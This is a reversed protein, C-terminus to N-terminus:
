EPCGPIRNCLEAAENRRWLAGSLAPFFLRALSLVGDPRGATLSGFRLETGGPRPQRPRPCYHCTDTETVAPVPGLSSRPRLSIHFSLCGVNLSGRQSPPPVHEGLSFWLGSHSRCSRPREGSTVGSVLHPGQGRLSGLRAPFLCSSDDPLVICTFARTDPSVSTLELM